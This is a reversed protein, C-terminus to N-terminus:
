SHMIFKKRQMHFISRRYQKTALYLGVRGKNCMLSLQDKIELYHSFQINCFRCTCYICIMDVPVLAPPSRTAIALTELNSYETNMPPFQGKLDRQGAPNPQGMEAVAPNDIGSTCLDTANDFCEFYMFGSRGTQCFIGRCPFRVLM